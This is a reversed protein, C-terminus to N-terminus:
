IVGRSTTPLDTCHYSISVWRRGPIELPHLQGAPRKRVAQVRQRSDCQNVWTQIDGAMKPWSYLQTGKNLTRQAGFHGAFPHKHVSEIGEYRLNDWRPIFLQENSTWQLRHADVHLQSSDSEENTTCGHRVRKFINEKPFISVEQQQDQHV